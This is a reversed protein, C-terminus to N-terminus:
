PVQHNEINYGNCLVLKVLEPKGANEMVTWMGDHCLKKHQQISRQLRHLQHLSEPQTNYEKELIQRMTFLQDITSRGQTFRAQEEGLAKDVYQKM